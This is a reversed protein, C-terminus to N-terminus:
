PFSQCHPSTDIHGAEPCCQLPRPQSFVGACCQLACVLSQALSRSGSIEAAHSCRWTCLRKSCHLYLQELVSFTAQNPLLIQCNVFFNTCVDEVSRQVSKGSLSCFGAWISYINEIITWWNWHCAFCSKPQGTQVFSQQLMLANVTVVQQLGDM